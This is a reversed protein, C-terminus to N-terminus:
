RGEEETQCGLCHRTWPLARLRSLPVPRRCAECTGFTGSELRAQAAQIEDLEHRERGELRGLLGEVARRASDEFLGGPEPASLSAIEGDTTAVTHLLRKRAELLGARFESTRDPDIGPKKHATMATGKASRAATEFLLGESGM